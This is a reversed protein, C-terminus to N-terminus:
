ELTRRLAQGDAVARRDAAVMESVLAEFGTTAQWGLVDRAKAADGILCDVETPRFYRPDVQVRVAGTEADIGVEEVGTGRWSIDIGTQEDDADLKM